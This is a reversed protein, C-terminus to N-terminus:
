KSVRFVRQTDESGLLFTDLISRAETEGVSRSHTTVSTQILSFYVWFQGTAPLRPGSIGSNVVFSAFEMSSVAMFIGRPSSKFFNCM